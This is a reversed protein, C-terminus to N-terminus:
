GEGRAEHSIQTDRENLSRGSVYKYEYRYVLTGHYSIPVAKVKEQKGETVLLNQRQRVLTTTARVRTFRGKKKEQSTGAPVLERDVRGVNSRQILKVSIARKKKKATLRGSRENVM